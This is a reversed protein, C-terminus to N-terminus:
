KGETNTRIYQRIAAAESTTVWGRNTARDWKLQINLSEHAAMFLPGAEIFPIGQALLERTIAMTEVSAATRPAEIIKDTKRAM